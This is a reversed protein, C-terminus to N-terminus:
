DHLVGNYGICGPKLFMNMFFGVRSRTAGIM